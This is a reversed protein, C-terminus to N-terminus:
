VLEILLHDRLPQFGLARYLRLPALASMDAYVVCFAKGNELALRTAAAAANSAYGRHRFEHPTYVASLRGGRPTNGSLAVVSKAGDDDWVYLTRLRLMREFFATVDVTSDLERGYRPAWQELLAWDAAAAHRFCGPAARPIDVSRVAHLRWRHRTRWDGNHAGAWARAFELATHAPAAVTKLGPYLRAVTDVLAGATGSPL